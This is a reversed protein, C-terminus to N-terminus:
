PQIASQGASAIAESYGNVARVDATIKDMFAPRHNPNAGTLNMEDLLRQAFMDVGIGHQTIASFAVGLEVTEGGGEKDSRGEVTGGTKPRMNTCLWARVVQTHSPDPEIFLVTMTYYDPLLDSPTTGSTVVNPVKTIPDMILDTIWRELFVNISRNYAEQWTFEPESKERTVNIVDEQEEGAGGFPHAEEDVTLEGQLGEITKAREEVLTKLTSRWLQPQPLDAFGRPAAILRPILNRRVFASHSVWSKFDTAWGFQGGNKVNVMPAQKGRAFADGNLITDDLRTSM